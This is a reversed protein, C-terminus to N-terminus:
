VASGHYSEAGEGSARMSADIVANLNNMEPKNTIVRMTGAQADSGYITGQPGSLAEVREIDVMRISPQDGTSTVSMEDLYLSSTGQAIYGGGDITAGRFVITSSGNAYSVVNVSPVFRSYDALGRAGMEKLNEESFAQISSPIDQVSEARKRATVVVEELANDDAALTPVPNVAASVAAAIPTLAFKYRQQM